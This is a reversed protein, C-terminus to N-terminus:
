AKAWDKVNVVCRFKPRGNELHDFAKPFDEFAFTECIPYVNHDVSFQLMEETERHGGIL